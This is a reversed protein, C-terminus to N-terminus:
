ANSRYGPAALHHHFHGFMARAGDVARDRAEGTALERELLAQFGPWAEAPEAPEFHALALGLEPCRRRLHRAILRGGLAAGEVVYLMGWAAAADGAVPAAGGEVPSREGTGAQLRALDARLGPARPRYTWPQTDLWDAHAQEWSAHIRLQRRLVEVYLSRDVAEGMLALMLPLAEVAAHADRTAARLHAAAGPGPPARRHIAAPM